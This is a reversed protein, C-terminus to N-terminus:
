EKTHVSEGKESYKKIDYFIDKTYIIIVILFAISSILMHENPTHFLYVSYNLLVAVNLFITVYICEKYAIFYYVSLVEGVFLYREHMGPLLFTITMLFWLAFQMIRKSDFKVRKYITYFMFLICVGVTLIEAVTYFIESNGPIINWFNNFNLTLENQYTRTQNFYVLLLEGFPKGAIIAPLCLVINVVPIILFHLVSYKKERIMYLIFLPLVFIFQLKFAFAVGLFVFSLVYREKILFLLSLLVFSAYLSDCQGWLAGNLFVNPLFLTIGYTIVQYFTKREKVIEKVLFSAAVALLFDSAISVWKILYLSKFPLYSLLSLITMYPANYDGPYNDLASVGGNETLYEFWKKLFLTYDSTEFDLMFFRIGVALLSIFVLFIILIHKEIFSYFKKEVMFM